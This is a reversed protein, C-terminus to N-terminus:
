SGAKLAYSKGQGVPEFPAFDLNYVSEAKDWPGNLWADVEGATIGVDADRTIRLRAVGVFRLTAGIITDDPRWAELQAPISLGNETQDTWRYIRARAFGPDDSSLPHHAGDVIAVFQGHRLFVTGPRPERRLPVSELTRESREVRFPIVGLYRRERQAIDHDLRSLSMVRLADPRVSGIVDALRSSNLARYVIERRQAVERETVVAIIRADDPNWARFREGMAYVPARYTRDATDALLHLCEQVRPGSAGAAAGPM